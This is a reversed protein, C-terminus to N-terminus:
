RLADSRQDCVPCTGESRPLRDESRCISKDYTAVRLALILFGGEPLGSLIGLATSSARCIFILLLFPKCNAIGQVKHASEELNAVPAPPDTEPDMRGDGTGLGSLAGVSFSAQFRANLGHSALVFKRTDM